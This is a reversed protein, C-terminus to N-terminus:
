PTAPTVALLVSPPAAVERFELTGDAGTRQEVWTYADARLAIEYRVHAGGAGTHEGRLRAARDCYVLMLVRHSAADLWDTTGLPEIGHAQLVQPALRAIRAEAPELRLYSVSLASPELSRRVDELGATPDITFSGDPALHPRMLDGTGPQGYLDGIIFPMWLRYSATPPAARPTHLDAQLFVVRSHLLQHTGHPAGCGAVLAVLVLMLGPRAKARM